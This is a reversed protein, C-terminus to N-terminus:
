LNAPNLRLLHRPRRLPRCVLRPRDVFQLRAPHLETVVLRAVQM